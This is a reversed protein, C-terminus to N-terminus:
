GQNGKGAVVVSRKMMMHRVDAFTQVDQIGARSALEKLFSRINALQVGAIKAIRPDRWSAM